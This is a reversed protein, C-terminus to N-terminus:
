HGGLFIASLNGLNTCTCTKALQQHEPQSRAPTYGHTRLREALCDLDRAFLELQSACAVRLLVMEVLEIPFSSLLLRVRTRTPLDALLHRQSKAVAQVDGGLPLSALGGFGDCGRRESLAGEVQDRTFCIYFQAGLEDNPQLRAIKEVLFCQQAHALTLLRENRQDPAVDLDQVLVTKVVCASEEPVLCLHHPSSEHVRHQWSQLPPM